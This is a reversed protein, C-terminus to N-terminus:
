LLGLGGTGVVVALQHRPAAGLGVAQEPDEIGRGVVHRDPSPRQLLRIAGDPEDAPVLHLLRGHVPPVHLLRRCPRGLGHVGLHSGVADVLEEGDRKGPRYPGVLRQGAGDVEVAGIGLALPEDM